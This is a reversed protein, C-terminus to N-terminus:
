KGDPRKFNVDEPFPLGTPHQAADFFYTSIYRAPGGVPELVHSVNPLIEAKESPRLIIPDKGELQVRLVGELVM